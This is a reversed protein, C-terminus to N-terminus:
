NISSDQWYVRVAQPADLTLGVTSASQNIVYWCEGECKWRSGDEWFGREVRIRQLEPWRAMQTFITARCRYGVVLFENPEAHIVIAQGNDEGKVTVQAGNVDKTDSFKEGPVPSMFVQLNETDAYYAIQSLAKRLSVYCDRLDYGGNAVTGDALVYPRFPTPYSVNLAWPAFLPAGFEGIAIYALRPAIANPGSNTETIAPLNRGVCYEELGARMDSVSCDTRLYHNRGVFSLSPCNELYTAVDEGPAGGVMWDVLKGSVFNLFFPIPHVQTGADTLPKIWRSSLHWASFKLDDTFGRQRFLEDAAPTHDRWQKRNSRDFGFVAIENEVQIMLITHTDEDIEKVHKVFARFAAVEAEVIPEYAYSIANHHAVGDADVARPYTEEDNIVYMPAFVESTLNRYINGDGSAYHGFWGLVLKLDHKEAMDKVHELYSFDTRGKEPEIMSWKIPVKLANLGMERAAPYLYDYAHLTEAYRDYTLDVWPIEVTLVTSPWGDAYFVQRGNVEEFHPMLNPSKEIRSDPAQPLEDSM